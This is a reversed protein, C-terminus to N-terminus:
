KTLLIKRCDFFSGVTMRCVYVGSSLQTGDFMVQYSGPTQKEDILVKVEQGLMDYVALKVVRSGIAQQRSGLEGVSYGITTSPNFPNPWNQMLASEARTTEDGPFEVSLADGVVVEGGMGTAAIPQEGNNGGFLVLRALAIPSTGHGVAQFTLVLIVGSGSVSAAGLIAQDVCLTDYIPGHTVKPSMMIAGTLFPGLTTGSYRLIAPDFVCTVSVAHLSFVNNVMVDLTFSDPVVAAM